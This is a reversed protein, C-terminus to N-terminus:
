MSHRQPLSSAAAPLVPGEGALRVIHLDLNSASPFPSSFEEPFMACRLPGRTGNVLEDWRQASELLRPVVSRPPLTDRIRTLVGGHGTRKM